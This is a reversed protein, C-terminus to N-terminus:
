DGDEEDDLAEIMTSVSEIERDLQAQASEIARKHLDSDNELQRRQERIASRAAKMAERSLDAEDLDAEADDLDDLADEFGEDIQDELDARANELAELHAELHERRSDAAEQRHQAAEERRMAADHRRMEAEHRREEAERRREEANRQNLEAARSAEEANRRIADVQEDSLRFQTAKRIEDRHMTFDEQMRVMERRWAEREKERLKAEEKRAKEENKRMRKLADRLEARKEATMPEESSFRYVKEGDNFSLSYSGEVEGNAAGLLREELDEALAAFTSGGAFGWSGAQALKLDKPAELTLNGFEPANM